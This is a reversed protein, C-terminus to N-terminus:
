AICAAPSGLLWAPPCIPDAPLLLVEGPLVSGPPFRVLLVIADPQSSSLDVAAWQQGASSQPTM